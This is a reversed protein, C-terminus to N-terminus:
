PNQERLALEYADLMTDLGLRAEASARVLRRDLELCGAIASTLGRVDDPEALFGTVGEEVVEPLAGRRYGAVPCGGMQAEAAVLGFPEEWRIPCLFVASQAMTRRVESRPLPGVFTAGDLDLRYDPDYRTGAITLPIGLARCARIADEFGKEPSLRGAAFARRQVERVPGPERSLGNRIVRAVEIGERAWERRSSESVTVLHASPVKRVAELAPGALPPLHLTHLVPAGTAAEFAAADFAHQSVVDAGSRDLNRFMAAIAADVEAVRQAPRGPHLLASRAADAPVEVTSIRVGPVESGAACHVTVAHGRAALGQALDVILAQAGGAWAGGLPTVPSAVLAITLPPSVM